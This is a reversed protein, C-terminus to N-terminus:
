CTGIECEHIGLSLLGIPRLIGGLYPTGANNANKVMAVIYFNLYVWLLPFTQLNIVL